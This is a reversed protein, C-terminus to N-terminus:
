IITESVPEDASGLWALAEEISLVERRTSHAMAPIRDALERAKTGHEAAIEPHRTALLALSQLALGPYPCEAADAALAEAAAASV